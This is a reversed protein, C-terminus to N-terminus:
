RLGDKDIKKLINYTEQLELLTKKDKIKKKMEIRNKYIKMVKEVENLSEYWKGLTYFSAVYNKDDKLFVQM